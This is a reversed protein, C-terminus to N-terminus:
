NNALNGSYDAGGAKRVRTVIDDEHLEDQKEAHVEIAFSQIIQKVGAKHVSVKARKLPGVREGVWSIFVFKARKSESDGSVVRLYGYQVQDDQLSGKLEELGGTGSGQVVIKSNGEYGFVVWNTENADSRVEEYSSKLQPDSVDAM